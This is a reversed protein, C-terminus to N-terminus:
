YGRYFAFLWIGISIYHGRGEHFTPKWMKFWFEKPFIDIAYNVKGKKTFIRKQKM